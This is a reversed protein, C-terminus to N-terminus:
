PSLTRKDKRIGVVRVQSDTKLLGLEDQSFKTENACILISESTM